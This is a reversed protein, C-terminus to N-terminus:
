PPLTGRIRKTAFGGADVAAKKSLRQSIGNYETSRWWMGPDACFFFGGIVLYHDFLMTFLKHNLGVILSQDILYEYLPTRPPLAGTQSFFFGIVLYNM